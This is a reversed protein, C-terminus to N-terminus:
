QRRTSGVMYGLVTAALSSLITLGQSPLAENPKDLLMLVFSLVPHMICVAILGVVLLCTAWKGTTARQAQITEHSQWEGNTGNGETRQPNSVVVIPRRDPSEKRPSPQDSLSVDNTQASSTENLNACARVQRNLKAAV